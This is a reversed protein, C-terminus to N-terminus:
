PPVPCVEIHLYKQCEETTLSRTLRSRAIQVLEDITLAIVQIGRGGIVLRKGDPTFAGDNPSFVAEVSLLEKGTASDWVRNTGDKSATTIRSGDPSFRATVITSTHGALKLLLNGTAANWVRATGDSGCTVIRAGDPSFAVGWNVNTHDTLTLLEKGAVADWVKGDSTDGGVIALRSGDPSFAVGALWGIGADWNSLAEGTARDFLRIIGESGVVVFRQGDPHYAIGWIVGDEVPLNLRVAGRAADWVKVTYDGGGTAVEKGDPSFAIALPFAAHAKREYVLNGNQADWVTLSDETNTTPSSGTAAILKGDPSVALRNVYGMLEIPFVESPSELSWIKITGDLTGSALHKGNSSFAVIGVFESHGSLTFSEAGTGTDWVHIKRDLGAVALRSSDPSFEMWMIRNPPRPINYLPQGNSADFVSIFHPDPLTLALQKGDPSLAFGYYGMPVRYIEEGSDIDIVHLHGEENFLVPDDVFLIRKGDSSYVLQNTPEQIDRWTALEKGTAADWFKITKDLSSTALQKGDPSFTIAQVGKTHGKLEFV